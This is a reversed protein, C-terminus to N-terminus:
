EFDVDAYVFYGHSTAAVDVVIGFDADFVLAHDCSFYTHIRWDTAYTVM